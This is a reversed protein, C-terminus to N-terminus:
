NRAKTHTKLFDTGQWYLKREQYFDALRHLADVNKDDAELANGAERVPSFNGPIFRIKEPIEDETGSGFGLQFTLGRGWSDAFVVNPIGHVGYKGALSKNRDFKSKHL